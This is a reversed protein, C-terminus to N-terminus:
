QGKVSIGLRDTFRDNWMGSANLNQYVSLWKNFLPYEEPVEQGTVFDLDLGWHVRVGSGPTCVTDKIQKLLLPGNSAGYLMDLEVMCTPRGQQPALYASAPAVFRLAMPGTLYGVKDQAAQEFAQIIKDIQGVLDNSADLSLEVAYAKVNDVKGLNMVKFSKDVYPPHPTKLTALARNIIAPTSLPNKALWAVLLKEFIPISAILGSLWYAPGRTGRPPGDAIGRVISIAAHKGKVAYPNLDVEFHRNSAILPSNIGDALQPRLDEWTTLSRVESLFYAPMVELTYSYILGVCGMAVLCTQFWDDDQKLEIKSPGPSYKTPDTIGNSPEIRYVTGSASVFVLSRVSSAIPGLTIGTGHTGTSIAGAVTQGDYAGMNILAVPPKSEDMATNLDKITKGSEVSFLNSASGPDKLSSADVPLTKNMKHPDLLIGNDVPAVDSFSHGSGVARVPVKLSTGDHVATILDDLSKPYRIELPHCTQGGICNSWEVKKHFAQSLASSLEDDNTSDQIRSGFEDQLSSDDPNELLAQVLEKSTQASPQAM